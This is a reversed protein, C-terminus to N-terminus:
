TCEHLVVSCCLPSPNEEASATQLRPEDRVSTCQDTHPIFGRQIAFAFCLSNSFLFNVRAIFAGCSAASYPQLGGLVSLAPVGAADVLLIEAGSGPQPRVRPGPEHMSSGLKRTHLVNFM